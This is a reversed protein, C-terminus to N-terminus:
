KVRSNGRKERLLFHTRSVILRVDKLYLGMVLVVFFLQVLLVATGEAFLYYSAGQFFLVVYSLLDRGLRFHLRIYDRIRRVRLCWTIWYCILTAFAAGNPGIVPVLAFNLVINVVAGIVTSRAFEASDKVAALIGGLYGSLAGFVISIVLFPVFHWAAFFDKSYLLSALPINLAVIITCAITMVCNYGAYMNSFFGDSDEPDYEGVASITWAQGVISQVISLISPIKTAVSYIGNASVGCFFTVIYRDSVNNVWWAINNAILPLSYSHMDDGLRGSSAHISISAPTNRAFLYVCQAFPGIVNAWFYGQLGLKLPLLFLLNCAIILASCLLSSVAVDKFNDLGRVYYVVIVSLAQVVYTVFIVLYHGDLDSFAGCIKVAILAVLAFPISLLLDRLGVAFVDEKRVDEDMSFRLVGDAINQTFIPIMLSISNFALDYVGYENTSLVNTFLPVLLFSMLKTGFSAISLLGVNRALNGMKSM